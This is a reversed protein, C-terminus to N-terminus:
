QVLGMLAQIAWFEQWAFLKAKDLWTMAPQPSRYIDEACVQAIDDM